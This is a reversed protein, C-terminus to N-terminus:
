EIEVSESLQDLEEMSFGQESVFSEFSVTDGIKRSEALQILRINDIRELLQELKKVKEQTERYEDISILVATPQNNKLVIYEKKNEAVDNFIRSAKGQSFDSVSVLHDAMNLLAMSMTKGGIKVNYIIWIIYAINENFNVNINVLGDIKDIAIM